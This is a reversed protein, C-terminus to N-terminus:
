QLTESQRQRRRRNHRVIALPLNGDLAEMVDAVEPMSFLEAPKMHVWKNFDNVHATFLTNLLHCCQSLYYCRWAAEVRREGVVLEGRIAKELLSFYDERTQAKWVFGLDAYYSGNETVVPKGLAAAEVGVTSTNPVIVKAQQILDYTNVPASAPLFQVRPHQGFRDELAFRYNDTSKYGPINEAPHQRVVINESSHQLVWDVTELMWETQNAFVAGRSLAATDYSINLPLFVGGPGKGGSSAVLQYSSTDSEYSPREISLMRRRLENQAVPVVWTDEVPLMSYALPIDERQAAIGNVCLLLRGLGCDVSAIRGESTRGFHMFLCSSSYLGGGVVVYDPRQLEFLAQVHKATQKLSKSIANRVRVSRSPRGEGRLVETTHVEALRQLTHESITLKEVPHVDSLRVKDITEPLMTLIRGISRQIQQRIPEHIGFGTDDWIVRVKCGRQYIALALALMFWPLPTSLWPQVVIWVTNESSKRDSVPSWRRLFDRFAKELKNWAWIDRLLLLPRLVFRATPRVWNLADIM